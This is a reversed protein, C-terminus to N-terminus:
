GVRIRFVEEGYHNNADRATIKTTYIGSIAGSFSSTGSWGSSTVPGGSVGAYYSYASWGSIGSIGNRTDWFYRYKQNGIEAMATAAIVTYGTNTTIEIDVDSISTDIGELEADVIVTENQRFTNSM